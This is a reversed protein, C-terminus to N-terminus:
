SRYDANISIYDKTLDCTWVKAKNKTNGLQIFIEIERKKLYREIKKLSFKLFDKGKKVIFHNGFKISINKENVKVGSKGIAMIIRGWNLDSGAMATKFLPSNAVSFAVKRAEHIGATGKVSISIFKSAGEGDKIILHALKLMLDKLSEKFEIKSFNGLSTKKDPNKVSVFLVMDSTSTDGDVTISNFTENVIKKFTNEFKKESIEANTFIFSLMTAMKPAIMGSGKAIGNIIISKNTKLRKSDLKPFTDTTRIAEAAGLWASPENNLKKILVPIKSIIKGHDLPEGIVGTSAIYIENDKISLEKSLKQIIKKQSIRGRYGNFVNANGSNILIASVKRYKLISKNWIVSEGPTQSNTFVGFIKSTKDFKILVLDHKSKKKLGCHVSSISIGNIHLTKKFSKPIFPSINESM